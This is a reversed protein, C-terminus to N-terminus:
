PNGNDTAKGESFIRTKLDHLKGEVEADERFVAVGQKTHAARAKLDALKETVAQLRAKVSLHESM